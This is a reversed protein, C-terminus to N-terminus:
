DRGIGDLGVRTWDAADYAGQHPERAVAPIGPYEPESPLGARSALALYALGDVAVHAETAALPKKILDKEVLTEYRARRAVLFAEIAAPFLGADGLVLARCVPLRPDDTGALCQEWRTLLDECRDRPADLHFRQMLVEVAYFDEEYEQGQVWDRRAARAIAAAAPEDGCALADFYPALRSTLRDSAPVAPLRAACAAASRHLLVNFGGSTGRLLLLAIGAVRFSGCADLLARAPVSAARLQPLAREMEYLANDLYVPLLQSPM